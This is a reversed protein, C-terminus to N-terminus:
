RLGVIYFSARQARKAAKERVYTSLQETTGFILAKPHCTAVCAPLKGQEVRQYCLVCKTM